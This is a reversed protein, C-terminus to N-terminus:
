AARGQLSGLRREHDDDLQDNHNEIIAAIGAFGDHMEYRMYRLDREITDFRYDLRNNQQSLQQSVTAANFQKLDEIIFSDMASVIGLM